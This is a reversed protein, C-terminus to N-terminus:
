IIEILLVLTERCLTVGSMTIFSCQKYEATVANLQARLCLPVRITVPFKPEMPHTLLNYSGHYQFSVHGLQRDNFKRTVKMEVIFTLPRNLLIGITLSM